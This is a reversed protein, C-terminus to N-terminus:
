TLTAYRWAKGVYDYIYLRYTTSNVYIAMSERFTRPTWTPASTVRPLHGTINDLRTMDTPAPAVPENYKIEIPKLEKPDNMSM